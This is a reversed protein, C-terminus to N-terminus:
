SACLSWSRACTGPRRGTLLSLCRTWDMSCKTVRVVSPLHLRALSHNRQGDFTVSLTRVWRQGKIVMERM